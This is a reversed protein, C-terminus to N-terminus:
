GLRSLPRWRHVVRPGIPTGKVQCGGPRLSLNCPDCPIMLVDPNLIHLATSAIATEALRDCYVLSMGLLHLADWSYRVNVCARLFMMNEQVANTITTAKRPDPFTFSHHCKPPMGCPVDGEHETRAQTESDIFSLRTSTSAGHWAM